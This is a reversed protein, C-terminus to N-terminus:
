LEVDGLDELKHFESVLGDAVYVGAVKLPKCHDILGGEPIHRLTLKMGNSSLTRHWLASAVLPYEDREFMRTLQNIWPTLGDLETVYTNLLAFLDAYIEGRDDKSMYKKMQMAIPLYHKGDDELTAFLYGNSDSADIPVGLEDIETITFELELADDSSAFMTKWNHELNIVGDTEKITDVISQLRTVLENNMVNASHYLHALSNILNEFLSVRQQENYEDFMDKYIVVGLSECAIPTNIIVSRTGTPIALNLTYMNM